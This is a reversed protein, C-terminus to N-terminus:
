PAHPLEAAHICPLGHLAAHLSPCHVAHPRWFSLNFPRTLLAHLTIVAKETSGVVIRQHWYHYQQRKQKIGIARYIRSAVLIGCRAGVPLYALGQEGSQYYKEAKALLSALCAQIQPQISAMPNILDVVDVNGLLSVPLYVRNLAADSGVDRCINTLQMAVGLDVAHAYARPDDVDLVACMMLGVTGAVQYCYRLLAAEDQVRVTGLDSVVGAILELVIAPDIKCEGMLALMDAIIPDQTIGSCIAKKVGALAQHATDLSTAEDALDDVYRCFGYLRTARDAHIKGLLKSAWYFSRGKAALTKQAASRANFVERTTIQNM